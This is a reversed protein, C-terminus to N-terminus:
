YINQRIIKAVFDTQLVVSEVDPFGESLEPFCEVLDGLAQHGETNAAALLDGDPGVIKGFPNVGLVAAAPHTRDQHRHIGVIAGVLKFIKKQL